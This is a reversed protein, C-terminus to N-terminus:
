SNLLCDLTHQKAIAIFADTDPSNRTLREGSPALNLIPSGVNHLRVQTVNIIHQNTRYVPRRLPTAPQSQYIAQQRDTPKHFSSLLIRTKNTIFGRQTFNMVLAVQNIRGTTM